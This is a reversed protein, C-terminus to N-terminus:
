NQRFLINQLFLSFIVKEAVKAIRLGEYATLNSLTIKSSDLLCDINQDIVFLGELNAVGVM